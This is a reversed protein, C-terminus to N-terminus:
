SPSRRLRLETSVGRTRDFLYARGFRTTYENAFIDDGFIAVTSARTSDTVIILWVDSIPLNYNISAKKDMLDQIWSSEGVPVWGTHWTHWSRHNHTPSRFIRVVNLEPNELSDNQWEHRGDAPTNASVVDLIAKAVSRVTRKLVPTGMGFLVAVDLPPGGSELHLRKALSIAQDQYQERAIQPIENPTPVVM